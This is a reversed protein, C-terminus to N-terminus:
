GDLDMLGVMQNEQYKGNFREQDLGQLFYSVILHTQLQMTINYIMRLLCQRKIIDSSQLMNIGGWSRQLSIRRISQVIFLLCMM